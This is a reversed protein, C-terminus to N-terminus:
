WRIGGTLPTMWFVRCRARREPRWRRTSAAWPANLAAFCDADIQTGVMASMIALAKTTPMAARYTPRRHARRLHRRHHHDPNRPPDPRGFAARTARATSGSTTRAPSRPSSASRVSARSSPKRIRPHMRMAAWEAEDLKGPKDLIANSVGLKGIDHLLAARKLWRRLAADFGLQEAIMDTFLTVRDSHGSTYPSKADVVQAFAAAIDDLYDEDIPVSAEGADAASRRQREDARLCTGSRRGRRSGSSPRLLRPDFWTGARNAGGCHRRPVTRSQFM